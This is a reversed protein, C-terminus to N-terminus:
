KTILPLLIKYPCVLETQKEYAGMDVTGGVIRPNEDYDDSPISPASNNGANVAPSGCQLHADLLNVFKPDQSISGTGGSVGYYDAWANAWVDNYTSVPSSGSQAHIGYVANSTIINNTISPNSSEFNAVGSGGFNLVITNNTITPSSSNTNFVGSGNNYGMVNNVIIPSSQFNYIAAHTGGAGNWGFINGRIGPSSYENHIGYNANASIDNLKISNASLNTYIGTSNGTITNSSIDGTSHVYTLGYIEIGRNGGRITFNSIYVSYVGSSASFSFVNQGGGAADIITTGAGVGFIVLNHTSTIPFSEANTIVSYTGAEVRVSEGAAAKNIAAQITRCATAASLCDWSNDGGPAVYYIAAYAPLYSLVALAIVALIFATLPKRLTSM